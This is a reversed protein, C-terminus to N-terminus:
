PQRGLQELLQKVEPSDMLGSIAQKAQIYDGGSAKSIAAKLEEGGNKQLLRILQQGAPSNALRMIEQIPLDNQNHM